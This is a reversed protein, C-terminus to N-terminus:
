SLAGSNAGNQSDIGILTGAVEIYINLRDVGIQEAQISLSDSPLSNLIPIDQRMKNLFSDAVSPELPKALLAPVDSGYSSGLYGNMPTNLWHKIMEILDNANIDM